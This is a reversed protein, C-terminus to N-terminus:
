SVEGVPEGSGLVRAVDGPVGGPLGSAVGLLEGCLPGEVGLLRSPVQLSAVTLGRADVTSLLLSEVGSYEDVVVGVMTVEDRRISSGFGAGPKGGRYLRWTGDEDRLELRSGAKRRLGMVLMLGSLFIGFGAFFWWRPDTLLFGGFANWAVAVSVVPLGVIAVIESVKWGFRHSALVTSM